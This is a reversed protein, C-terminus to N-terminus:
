GLVTSKMQSPYLKEPVNMNVFVNDFFALNDNQINSSRLVLIGNESVNRPNYTLGIICEGVEGLRKVGWEVPIVGVETRKYGQPLDDGHSAAHQLPATM